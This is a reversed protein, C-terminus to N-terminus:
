PGRGLRVNFSSCDKLRPRRTPPVSRVALLNTAPRRLGNQLALAWDWRGRGGQLQVGEDVGRVDAVSHSVLPNDPADRRRHERGFPVDLRGLRLRVDPRERLLAVELFMEGVQMGRKYRERTLAELDAWALVRPGIAGGVELRVEDFRVSNGPFAASRGARRGAASIHGGVKFPRTANPAPGASPEASLRPPEVEAPVPAAPGSSVPAVAPSAPPKNAGTSPPEEALASARRLIEDLVRQQRALNQQMAEHREKLRQLEAELDTVPPSPEAGWAAGALLFLAPIRWARTGVAMGALSIRLRSKALGTILKGTFM